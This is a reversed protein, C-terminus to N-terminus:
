QYKRRALEAGHLAIRQVRPRKSADRAELCQFDEGETIVVLIAEQCKEIDESLCLRRWSPIVM